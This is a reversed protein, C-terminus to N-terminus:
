ISRPVDTVYIWNELIYTIDGCYVHNGTRIASFSFIICLVCLSRSFPLPSKFTLCVVLGAKDAGLHCFLVTLGNSFM